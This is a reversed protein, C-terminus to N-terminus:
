PAGGALRPLRRRPEDWRAALGEPAAPPTFLQDIQSRIAALEGQTQEKTQALEAKTQALEDQSIILKAKTQALDHQTQALAASRSARGEALDAQTQTLDAQCQTLDAKCQTLDASTDALRQRLLGMHAVVGDREHAALDEQVGPRAALMRTGVPWRCTPVPLVWVVILLLGFFVFPKRACTTDKHRAMEARRVQQHCQDCGEERWECEAGLHHEVDLVGVLAECGLGRNPCHCQMQKVQRADGLPLKLRAFGVGFAPGLGCSLSVPEEYHALCAPCRWTEDDSRGIPIVYELLKRPRCPARKKGDSCCTPMDNSNGTVVGEAAEM